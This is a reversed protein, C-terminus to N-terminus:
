PLCDLKELLAHDYPDDLYLSTIVYSGNAAHPDPTLLQRARQLLLAYQRYDIIYKEEHRSAM